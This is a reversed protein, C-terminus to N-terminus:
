PLPVDATVQHGRRVQQERRVRQGRHNGVEPRRVRQLRAPRHCRRLRDEHRGAATGPLRRLHHVERWRHEAVEPLMAAIATGDGCGAAQAALALLITADYAQAGYTFDKLSPDIEKLSANFDTLDAEGVPITGLVGKMTGKPFDAYATTSLNGDVLYIQVDQPVSM